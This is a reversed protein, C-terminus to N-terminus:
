FTKKHTWIYDTKNLHAKTSHRYNLYPIYMIVFLPWKSLTYWGFKLETMSKILEETINFHM